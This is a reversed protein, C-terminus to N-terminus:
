PARLESAGRPSEVLPRVPEEQIDTTASMTYVDRIPTNWIYADDLFLNFTFRTFQGVVLREPISSNDTVEGSMRLFANHEINFDNYPITITLKPYNIINFVINRVFEDAEKFYRTYIDLQYNVDVPIANLQSARDNNANLTMGDFSMPRKNPRTFNLEHKRRLCIIPLEIPSDNSEDAIVEFLRRTDDPSYVHVNTSKTWNNLKVVLADDYLYISM